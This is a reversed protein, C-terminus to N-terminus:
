ECRCHLCSKENMPIDCMRYTYMYVSSNGVKFAESLEDQSDIPVIDDDDDWYLVTIANCDAYV